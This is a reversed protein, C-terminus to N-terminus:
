IHGGPLLATSPTGNPPELTLGCFAPTAIMCAYILRRPRLLIHMLTVLAAGPTTGFGLKSGRSTVQPQQNNNSNNHLLRIGCQWIIKTDATCLTHILRATTEKPVQTLRDQLWLKAQARTSDMPLSRMHTTVMAALTAARAPDIAMAVAM